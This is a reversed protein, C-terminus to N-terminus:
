KTLAFSSAADIVPEQNNGDDDSSLEDLAYTPRDGMCFAEEDKMEGNFEKYGIVRASYCSQYQEISLGFGLANCESSIIIEKITPNSIWMLFIEQLPDQSWPTLFVGVNPKSNPSIKHIKQTITKTEMDIDEKRLKDCYRQAVECWQLSLLIPKMGKISRYDNLIMLMKSANPYGMYMKPIKQHHTICKGLLLICGYTNENINDILFSVHTYDRLILKPYMKSERIIRIFEDVPSTEGKHVKEFIYNAEQCNDFTNKIILTSLDNFLSPNSLKLNMLKSAATISVILPKVSNKRRYCNVYRTVALLSEKKSLKSKITALIQTCFWSGNANEAVGIGTHTYEGQIRSFSSPKRLWSLIITKGPDDNPECTAVNESFALTTPAMAERSNYGYHGFPISNKSMNIAHEGAIFSLEKSYNLAPLGYETRAQNTLEFLRRLVRDPQCLPGTNM